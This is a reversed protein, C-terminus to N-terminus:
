TSCNLIGFRQLHIRQIVTRCDDFIRRMHNTDVACTFHPFCLRTGRSPEVYNTQTVSMFMDRLFFLARLYEQSELSMDKKTGGSINPKYNTYNPFYTELKFKNAKIKEELLDQKNLFLIVSVEKLFRNKWIQEFLELSERLRNKSPDEKLFLNYGSLSTVFVVATADNFCQIWKRRQDRQGGVDFMHFVADKVKFKIELIQETMVRCRLIDQDDPLYDPHRLVTLKDLFYGTNDFLHYENSREYCEQLAVSKWLEQCDDFFKENYDYESKHDYNDLMRTATEVLVEADFTIDLSKMAQLMSIIAERVNNYICQSYKKREGLNFGKLNIIQMQKVITSKGSEAAGLLLLRHTIRYVRKEKEIQADIYLSREDDPDVAKTPGCCPIFANMAVSQEFCEAVLVIM